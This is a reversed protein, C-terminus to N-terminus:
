AEVGSLGETARAEDVGFEGIVVDMARALTLMLKSTSERTASHYHWGTKLAGCASGGIVIPIDDLSHTRGESIETCGIVACSDLLTGGGEPVARLADLWEAYRTVCQVTIEHVQPQDGPEDHTLSHHGATAGEFLVDSVPETLYHGFVRTQDCALAMAVISAMARNREAVQPRGAADPYSPLPAPPRACAELDPPDEQLRALRLELERVGTLHQDVRAKDAAGLRPELRALDSMVADLVSRRLGLRPDVLGGSGPEVFTDGFLRQYLAFPDAEAPNRANVGSFSLGLTDTAATQLSRYLTAGGISQAVIQDITPATFSELGIGSLRAGSLLGAAGSGHPVENPIKVSLGTVVCIADQHAALPALQDSLTFEAGEGAPTWRDPRNGNGWTFVGFRKPLGGGCAWAAPGMMAELLPLGVTAAAGGLVGRLLARRNMPARPPRM